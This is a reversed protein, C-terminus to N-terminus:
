SCARTRMRWVTEFLAALDAPHTSVDEGTWTVTKTEDNRRLTLTYEVMDASGPEPKRNQWAVPRATDVLRQLEDREGEGLPGGSCLQANMNRAELTGNDVVSGLGRGAFGGSSTIEVRWTSSRSQSTTMSATSPATVSDATNCAGLLLVFTLVARSM